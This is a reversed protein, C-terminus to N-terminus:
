TYPNFTPFVWGSVWGNYGLGYWTVPHPMIPCTAQDSPTWYGTMGHEPGEIDPGSGDTNSTVKGTVQTYKDM